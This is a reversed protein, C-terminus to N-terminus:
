NMEWFSDYPTIKQVFRFGHDELYRLIVPNVCDEIMLHIKKGFKMLNTAGAFTEEEHGEIDIKIFIEDFKKYFAASLLSDLKQLKFTLKQSSPITPFRLASVTTNKDSLGVNYVKCNKVNNLRFNELCLRYYDHDPEFVLTTLRKSKVFKLIGVSYDGVFAGVDLYLVNKNQKLSQKMWDILFEKDPREFAPSIISYGYYDGIFKYRGFITEITRIQDRGPMEYNTHFLYNCIHLFEAFLLRGMGSRCDIVIRIKYYLFLLYYRLKSYRM